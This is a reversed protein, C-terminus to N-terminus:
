SHNWEDQLLDPPLPRSFYYGQFVHCGLQKLEAVQAPTEVGEAVVTIDLHHGLSIITAVIARGEKTFLNNVFAKDIKIHDISFNQLYKLSSYGTGFDDMAIKVGLTKLEQLIGTAIDEQMAITETIELMLYEPPLGTSTLIAKIKEVLDSQYFQRLSLNVSVPLPNMGANQWTVNQRCAEELVWEGIPVIMGTEEAVPIFAAPTVMGLEKNNWRILAEIGHLEKTDARYQPQYHLVFEKNELAEHLLAEMRLDSHALGEIDSSYVQFNNRGYKKAHYMAHDAARVIEKEDVGHRPYVGIGISATLVTTFGDIEFSKGVACVVEMALVKVELESFHPTLVAFEDGGFRYVSGKDGVVKQLREAFSTLLQDGAEHGLNDNIFKFRDLDVIWVALEQGQQISKRLDENFLRRNGLGTLNDHYAMYRMVEDHRKQLTIDKGICHIHTLENNVFAPILTVHLYIIENDKNRAITEYQYPQGKLVQQFHNWTQERVEEDIFPLFSQGALEEPQVGLLEETTKNFTIFRGELDYTIVPDINYYFFARNSEVSEKIQQEMSLRDTIDQATGIVGTVKGDIIIPVATIEVSIAIGKKDKMTIFFNEVHGDLVKLFHNYTRELDAPVTVEQYSMGIIEERSYGLIKLGADNFNTFHGEKDIMYVINPNYKFLSEFESLTVRLKEKTQYHDTADVITLVFFLSEM